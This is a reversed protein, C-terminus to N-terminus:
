LCPALASLPAAIAILTLVKLSDAHGPVAHEPGISVLSVKMRKTTMPEITTTLASANMTRM